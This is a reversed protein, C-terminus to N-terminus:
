RHKPKSFPPPRPSTITCAAPVARSRVRTSGSVATGSKETLHLAAKKGLLQEEARKEVARLIDGPNEILERLTVAESPHFPLAAMPEITSLDIEIMADYYAGEAPSLSRYEGARGHVSLYEEM